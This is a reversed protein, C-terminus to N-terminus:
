AAKTKFHLFVAAASIVAAVGITILLWAPLGASHGAAIAAAGTVVIAGGAKGHPTSPPNDPDAARPKQKDLDSVDAPSEPLRGPLGPLALKWKTLWARRSDLGIYGGNVRKTVGRLDDKDCFPLCGLHVFEAAAVELANEPAHALSPNGVLDLGCLQGITQYSERGTIQLLGRGRFNYGDDTGIRNGMRGNYVKNALLRANRTYAQASEPTFRSPWVAAIRAATTYNLSEEIITGGGSEHSIQGMFHAIRLSTNIEHKVFVIPLRAVIADIMVDPAGPWLKRLMARDFAAM